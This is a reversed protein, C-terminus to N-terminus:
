ESRLSKVPNATAARITQSSITIMAIVLIMLPPLIFLWISLPMQFHYNELWKTLLYYTVPLALVFSILVPKIFDTTLLGVINPISAGSIKRIGIEKTKVQATYAALGFLGLCSILIAVVAFINFLKGTRQETRYMSDYEEDVFTYRFPFAPSYKSWLMQVSAIAKQADRGTTKIFLRNNAPTYYFAAPEIRTKLSAYHFDKVVGIITAKVDWLQFMKGVPDKIGAERVATENLIIHMSDSKAGTFNVGAAMQMKFLSIQHEDIATAHILFTSNKPKGDWDTD